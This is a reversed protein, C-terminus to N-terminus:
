DEKKEQQIKEYEHKTIENQMKQIKRNKFYKIPRLWWGILLWYYIKLIM